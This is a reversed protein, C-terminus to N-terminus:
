KSIKNEQYLFDKKGDRDITEKKFVKEYEDKSRKALAAKRKDAIDNPCAMLIHFGAGKSSHSGTAVFEQDQVVRYGRSRLESISPAANEDTSAWILTHGPINVAKLKLDYTNVYDQKRLEALRVDYEEDTELYKNLTSTTAIAKKVEQKDVMKEASIINKDLTDQNKELINKHAM